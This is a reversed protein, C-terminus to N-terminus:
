VTRLGSPVSIVAESRGPSSEFGNRPRKRFSPAVTVVGKRRSPRPVARGRRTRRRGGLRHVHNKEVKANGAREGAGHIRAGGRVGRSVILLVPLSFLEELRSADLLRTREEVLSSKSQLRGVGVIGVVHRAAARLQAVPRGRHRREM